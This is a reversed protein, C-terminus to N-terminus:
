LRKRYTDWNSTSKTISIHYLPVHISTISYSTHLHPKMFSFHTTTSLGTSPILDKPQKLCQLTIIFLQYPTIQILTILSFQFIEVFGTFATRLAPWKVKAVQLTLHPPYYNSEIIVLRQTTGPPKNTKESLFHTFCHRVALM